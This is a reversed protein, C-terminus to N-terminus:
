ETEEKKYMARMIPDCHECELWHFSKEGEAMDILYWNGDVGKAFDVSWYGKVVHGVLEAYETLIDIEEKDEYNLKGVLERWNEQTTNGEVASPYWYPHHCLVKGDKIFYRREKNVPFDGSFAKFSTELNIFERVILANDEYSMFGQMSSSIMLEVINEPMTELSKVYCTRKWSHKCSSQDTRLFLPFGIQIAQRKINEFVSDPAIEKSGELKEDEKLLYIETKPQPIPLIKIKPYWYLMSSKDNIEFENNM